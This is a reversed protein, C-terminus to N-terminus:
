CCPSKPRNRNWRAPNQLVHEMIHPSFYLSMTSRLKLRQIFEHSQRRGLEVLTLLTWVAGVNMLGVVHGTKLILLASLACCVLVGIIWIILLWLTGRLFVRLLAWCLWDWSLWRM